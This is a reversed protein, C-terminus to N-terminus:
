IPKGSVDYIAGTAKDRWQNHQSNYQLQSGILNRPIPPIAPMPATPQSQQQWTGSLFKDYPIARGAKMSADYYKQAAATLTAPSYRDGFSSVVQGANLAMDMKKLSDELVAKQAGWSSEPSTFLKQMGITAMTSGMRGGTMGLAFDNALAANAEYKQLMDYAQREPSDVGLVQEGERFAKKFLGQNFNPGNIINLSQQLLDRTNEVKPLETYVSGIIKETQAALPGKIPAPILPVGINKAYEPTQDNVGGFAPNRTVIPVTPNNPDYQIIDGYMDFQPKQREALDNATKEALEKQRIGLEGQQYQKMNQLQENELNMRQKADVVQNYLSEGQAQLSGRREAESAAEQKQKGYNELGAQMGEGLAVGAFPSRSALMGAGVAGLALWPDVKNYPQANAVETNYNKMFEDHNPINYNSATAAVPPRFGINDNAPTRVNTNAAPANIAPLNAPAPSFGMLSPDAAALAPSINGNADDTLVVPSGQPSNLGGGDDFHKPVFGGRKLHSFLSSLQLGPKTAGGDINSLLGTAQSGAMPDGFFAGVVDGIGSVIDPLLNGGFAMHQVKGGRKMGPQAAPAPMITNQPMATPMAQRQRLAQQIIRGQQTGSYRASLEQLKEPPIQELRSYLGGVFPNGMTQPPTLGGISGGMDYHRPRLGHPVGGGRNFFSMAWDGLSSLWGSNAAASSAASGAAGAGAGSGFLSGIYDGIGSLFGPSSGTFSGAGSYLSNASNFDSAIGPIDSVTIDSGAAPIVSSDIPGITGIGGNVLSGIGKAAQGLGAFNAGPVGGLGGSNGGTTTSTSGTSRPTPPPGMVGRPSVATASNNFPTLGANPVIPLGANLPAVFGAPVGGGIGGGDDYHAPCFGGRARTVGGGRKFWSGMGLWGPTSAGAASTGPFAGSEGLLSLGGLGLGGIQAATSPAPSTTTSTGGMSGGVGTSINSLWGINQFPYAQQALFQEYPVNLQEQALQQGLGGAQLQTSAGELAANQASMGLNNELASGQTGLWANAENANLQAQQQANFEGQQQNFGTNEMNAITSNEALAQQRALESQAIASRDGGWAGSGIANGVVQNQQEANGEEINARTAAVAQNMYPNAFQAMTAPSYQMTNGWLPTQSRSLYDQATTTYPSMFGQIGNITNFASLQSPTFGAVMNSANFGGTSYPAQAATNAQGIVNKYQALVEAPPQSNQTVTNTGGGGKGM